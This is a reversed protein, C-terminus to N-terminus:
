HREAHRPQYGDHDHHHRRPGDHASAGHRHPAADHDHSGRVTPRAPKAPATTPRPPKVPAIAPPAKVTADPASTASAADPASTASASRHPRPHLVVRLTHVIRLRHRHTQETPEATPCPDAPNKPETPRTPESTVPTVPTAPVLTVPTVPTSTDPEWRHRVLTVVSPGPGDPRTPVLTRPPTGTDVPTDTPTPTTRDNSTGDTAPATGTRASPPPPTRDVAPQVTIPSSPRAPVTSVLRVPTTPRTRPGLPSTPPEQEVPIAVAQGSAEDLVLPARLAWGLATSGPGSLRIPALGGSSAAVAGLLAAASVAASRVLRVRLVSGPVHRGM